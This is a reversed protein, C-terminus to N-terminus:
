SARVAGVSDLVLFGASSMETVMNCRVSVITAALDNVDFFLHNPRHRGQTDGDVGHAPIVTGASSNRPLVQVTAFVPHM